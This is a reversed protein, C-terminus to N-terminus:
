RRKPLRRGRNAHDSRRRRPKNSSTLHFWGCVKCPHYGEEVAGPRFGNKLNQRAWRAARAGKEAEEETRFPHKGSACIPAAPDIFPVSM